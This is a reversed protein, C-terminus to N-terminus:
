FSHSIVSAIDSKEVNPDCVAFQSVEKEIDKMFGNFSGNSMIVAIYNEDCKTKLFKILRESENIHFAKFSSSYNNIKTVLRDSSFPEEGEKLRSLKAPSGTVFLDSDKFIEFYEDEFVKRANSNTAPDFLVCIKKDPFAKRFGDFTLRAATPHHAFDSFIMAGNLFGIFEQRRKIGKLSDFIPQKDIFDIGEVHLFALLAGINMLNQDGFMPVSLTEQFKGNISYNFCTTLGETKIKKIYLNATEDSISYTFFKKEGFAEILNRNREYDISLIVKEKTIDVLTKFRDYIEEVSSYIDAHDFEISTIITIKPLYHLFKPGKDFFATDYEDGELFYYGKEYFDSSKGSFLPVGGIFYSPNMKAKTLFETFITTTTTKGHTGAIVVNRHNPLLFKEMFEPMSYFPVKSTKVIEAERSKGNLANGVIVVDPPNTDMINEFETPTFLTIEAEELLTSVPPYFALDFGSVDAGLKKLTLALSSMGTGCIRAFLIKKGYFNM